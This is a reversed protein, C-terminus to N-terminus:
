PQRPLQGASRQEPGSLTTDIGPTSPSGPEAFLMEVEVEVFMTIEAFSWLKDV